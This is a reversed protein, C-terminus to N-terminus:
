LKEPFKAWNPLKVNCCHPVQMEGPQRSPDTVAGASNNLEASSLFGLFSLWGSVALCSSAFRVQPFHNQPSEEVEHTVGSTEYEDSM